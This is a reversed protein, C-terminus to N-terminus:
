SIKDNAGGKKKKSTDQEKKLLKKPDASDNNLDKNKSEKAERRRNIIEKTERHIKRSEEYIIIVAPIVIVLILGPLTKIYGLAYGIYPVTFIVRGKIMPRDVIRMDPSDNADGKTIYSTVGDAVKIEFIRHTTTDSEKEADHSIFNIVEGVRYEDFPKVVVVSGVHIAKEMSGSMVTLLKINGKMPLMSFVIAIGFIMMIILFLNSLAVFLKKLM